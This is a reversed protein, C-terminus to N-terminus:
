RDVRIALVIRAVLFPLLLLLFVLYLCAYVLLKQITMPVVPELALAAMQKDLRRIAGAFRPVQVSPRIVVHRGVLSSARVGSELSSQKVATVSLTSAMLVFPSRKRTGAARPSAFRMVVFGANSPLGTYEGSPRKM